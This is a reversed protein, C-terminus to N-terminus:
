DRPARNVLRKASIESRAPASLATIAREFEQRDVRAPAAHAVDEVLGYREVIGFAAPLFPIDVAGERGAVRLFFRDQYQALSYPYEWREPGSQERESLLVASRARDIRLSLGPDPDVTELSILLEHTRSAFGAMIEVTLGAARAHDIAEIVTLPEEPFPM